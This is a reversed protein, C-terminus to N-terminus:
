EAVPPQLLLDFIKRYREVAESIEKDTLVNNRQHLRRDEQWHLAFQETTQTMLLNSPRLSQMRVLQQIEVDINLYDVEFRRFNREQEPMMALFDFHQFLVKEVRKTQQHTRADFHAMMECGMLSVISLLLGIWGALLANRNLM